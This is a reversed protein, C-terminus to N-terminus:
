EAEVNNLSTLGESEFFFAFTKSEPDTQKSSYIKKYFNAEEELILKPDSLITDNDTTLSTIHKKKHNRKELNYFYKSNKEGFEYWRVKSRLM